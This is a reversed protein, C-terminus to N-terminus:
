RRSSGRTPKRPSAGHRAGAARERRAVQVGGARRRPAQGSRAVAADPRRARRRHARRLRNNIRVTALDAPPEDAVPKAPRPTSCSATPTAQHLGEQERRQLAAPRGAVGRHDARRASQRDRRGGDIRRTPRPSTTPRRFAALADEFRHRRAGGRGLCRLVALRSCRARDFRDGFSCADCYDRCNALSAARM